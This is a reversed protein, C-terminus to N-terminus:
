RSLEWVIEKVIDDVAKGREEISIDALSEYVPRRNEMLRRVRAEVDDGQLLPRTTDGELRRIVEEPTVDLYVIEGLRRLREHNEERMPLGGGTCIVAHSISENLEDVAKTELERFYGEGKKDFLESITCGQKEEIYADVDILRYGLKESLKRGITSKGCGMFGILVVNGKVTKELKEYIVDCTDEPISIDNWLEYAIVGQYLLMRLGNYSAAGARKCLKMFRTEFPNYILDIGVGVMRYFAEDEIVVDDINPYLGIPTSQFVIFGKRLEGGVGSKEDMHEYVRELQKYDSLEMALAGERGFCRNMDDAITKAKDLTRNLIYVRAAGHLMCMYSAARAAGGGGLIVVMRDKLEINYTQLERYLGMMDTNYGKYGKGTRVLTNVAGIARAGDDIDSLSEIVNNKHPVTANLGLINLEYAGKVADALGERSTHFPVYVNNIGLLESLTNHIVPSMTHEVPDGLLGLVRTKGDINM